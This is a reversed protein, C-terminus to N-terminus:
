GLVTLEGEWDPTTYWSSHANDSHSLVTAYSSSHQSPLQTIKV